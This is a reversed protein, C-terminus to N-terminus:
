RHAWRGTVRGIAGLPLGLEALFAPEDVTEIGYEKAKLRNATIQEGDSVVLLHTKKTLRPLLECGAWRAVMVQGDRDLPVGFITSGGSGTFVVNKGVWRHAPVSLDDTALEVACEGPTGLHLVVGTGGREATLAADCAIAPPSTGGTSALHVFLAQYRVADFRSLYGALSWSGGAWLAMRIANGDYQNSPEPVLMAKFYGSPPAPLSPPLDEQSPARASLVSAQRYAEGVVDLTADDRIRRFYSVNFQVEVTPSGGFLRRLFSM